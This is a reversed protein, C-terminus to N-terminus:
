AGTTAGTGTLAGIAPGAGTLAGITPRSGSRAGLAGTIPIGTGLSREAITRQRAGFVPFEFIVPYETRTTLAFVFRVTPTSRRALPLAVLKFTVPSTLPVATFNWTRATFATPVPAKEARELATCGAATGRAGAIRSAVEPTAPPFISAVALHSGGAAVAPDGIM